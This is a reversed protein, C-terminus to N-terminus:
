KVSTYQKLAKILNGPKALECLWAAAKNLEDQSLAAGLETWGEMIHDNHQGTKALTWLAYAVISNAPVGYGDAYMKGLNFQAKINGKAAAQQYWKIAEKLNRVASTDERSFEGLEYMADTDGQAAALKYWKTADKIDQVVGRGYSYLKGMQCQATSQPM